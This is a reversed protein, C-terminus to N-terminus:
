DSTQNIVSELKSVVETLRSIAQWPDPVAVTNNVSQGKNKLKCQDVSHTPAARDKYKPQTLCWTCPPGTYKTRGKNGDSTKGKKNAFPTTAASTRCESTDHSNSNPHNICHKITSTSSSSSSNITANNGRKRKNGAGHPVVDAVAVNVSVKSHSLMGSGKIERLYELLKKQWNPDAKREDKLALQGANSIEQNRLKQLLLKVTKERENLSSFSDALNKFRLSKAVSHRIIEFRRLESIVVPVKPNTWNRIEADTSDGSNLIGVSEPIDILPVTTEDNDREAHLCNQLYQVNAWRKMAQTIAELHSHLDQGPQIEYAEVEDEFAKVNGAGLRVYYANLGKFAQHFNHVRLDPEVQDIKSPSIKDFCAHCHRELEGLKSTIQLHQSVAARLQAYVDRSDVPTLSQSIYEDVTMPPFLDDPDDPDGALIDQLHQISHIWDAGHSQLTAIAGALDLMDLNNILPSTADGIILAQPGNFIEHGYPAIRAQAEESENYNANNIPVRIETAGNNRGVPLARNKLYYPLWNHDERLIKYFEPKLIAANTASRSHIHAVLIEELKPQPYKSENAGFTGGYHTGKLIIESVGLHNMFAKWETLFNLWEFCTNGDFVRCKARPPNIISSTFTSDSTLSM